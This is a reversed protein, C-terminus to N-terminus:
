EVWVKVKVGVLSPNNVVLFLGDPALNSALRSRTEGVDLLVPDTGETNTTTSLSFYVGEAGMNQITYFTDADYITATHITSVTKSAVTVESTPNSVSGNADIARAANYMNYMNPNSVEITRVLVDLKDNFLSRIQDIILPINENDTKRKDIALSPDSVSDTFSNLATNFATLDAAALNYPALSAIIPTALNKIINANSILEDESCSYWKSSPYDAKKQLILDNSNVAFGALANSFKLCSTELVKRINQKNMAVGTLDTRSGTDTTILNNILTNLQTFQATVGPVANLVTGNIRGFNRVKLAMSFFSENNKTM